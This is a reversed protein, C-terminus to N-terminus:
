YEAILRCPVQPTPLPTPVVSIRCTPGPLQALHAPECVTAVGKGFFRLFVGDLRTSEYVDSIVLKVGCDIIWEVADMELYVSRKTMEWPELGELAHIIVAQTSIKGGCAAELAAASVGGSKDQRHLHIVTCPIRFWAALDYNEATVGDDTERIHGPLDLYTSDMSNFSYDYVMGTYETRDSKLPHLILEAKHGWFSRTLDLVPM